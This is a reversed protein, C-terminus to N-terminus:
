RKVEWRLFRVKPLQLFYPDEDGLQPCVWLVQNDKAALALVAEKMSDSTNGSLLVYTHGNVHEELLRNMMEAGSFALHESDMCALHCNLEMMRSGGAPMYLDLYKREGTEKGDSEQPEGNAFIRFAMKHAAMQGGLSSAIRISEEVLQSRSLIHGDEVDLLITINRNTTADFQNVMLTGMRASAKWNVHNLPDTKEYDRIGSFEFPDPHLRNQAIVMGSIERCLIQIQNVAVQRPFVYIGADQPLSQYRGERFFFDSGVVDVSKLVYHGRQSCSFDLNRTIQQRGIFSFIDRKYTQDSTTTNESVEDAFTLERPIILRVHLAPLPFNKDNVVVEKLVSSDGEYIHTDAFELRVSLNRNWNRRFIFDQVMWLIFVGLLLLLYM